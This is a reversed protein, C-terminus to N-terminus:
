IVISTKVVSVKPKIWCFFLCMIVETYVIYQDFYPFCDGWWIERPRPPPPVSFLLLLFFFLVFDKWSMKVLRYSPILGSIGKFFFTWLQNEQPYAVSLNEVVRFSSKLQTYQQKASSLESLTVFWKMESSLTLHVKLSGFKKLCNTSNYKM